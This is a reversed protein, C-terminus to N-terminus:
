EGDDEGIVFDVGAKPKRLAMGDRLRDRVYSSFSQRADHALALLEQYEDWDLILSTIKKPKIM